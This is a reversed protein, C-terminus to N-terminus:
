SEPTLQCSAGSKRFRGDTPLNCIFDVKKSGSIPIAAALTGHGYTESSTRWLCRQLDQGAPKCSSPLDGLLRSLEELNRASNLWSMATPRLVNRIDRDKWRPQNVTKKRHIKQKEKQRLEWEHKFRIPSFMRRNSRMPRASCAKADAANGENTLRCILSVRARTDLAKAVQRWPPQARGLNWQCLQDSEGVPICREPLARNQEILGDKTPQEGFIQNVSAQWSAPPREPGAQVVSPFIPALAIAAFLSAAIFGAQTSFM